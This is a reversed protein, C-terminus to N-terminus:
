GARVFELSVSIPEAEAIAKMAQSSDVFKRFAAADKPLKCWHNGDKAKRMDTTPEYKFTLRLQRIDDDDGAESIFQRTINFDFFEGDGWDYCGWQYLLMDGDLQLDCGEAREAVYFDIMLAIGNAPTLLSLRKAKPKLMQLFHKKAARPKM